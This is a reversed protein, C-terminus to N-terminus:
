PATWYETMGSAGYASQCLEISTGVGTCGPQVSIWIDNPPLQIYSRGRVMWNGAYAGNGSPGNSCFSDNAAVLIRTFNNEQCMLVYQAGVLWYDSNSAQLMEVASSCNQLLYGFEDSGTGNDFGNAVAVCYGYPVGSASPIPGSSKPGFSSCGGTNISTGVLATPIGPMTPVVFTGTQCAATIASVINSPVPVVVVAGAPASEISVPGTAIAFQPEGSFTSM